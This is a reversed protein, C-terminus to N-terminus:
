RLIGMTEVRECCRSLTQYDTIDGSLTSGLGSAALESPDVDPLTGDRGALARCAPRTGWRLDCFYFFGGGVSWSPVPKAPAAFRLAAAKAAGRIAAPGAPGADALPALPELRSHLSNVPCTLQTSGKIADQRHVTRSTSM